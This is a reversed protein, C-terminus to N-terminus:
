AVPNQFAERPVPKELLEPDIGAEYVLKEDYVPNGSDSWVYIPLNPHAKRFRMAEDTYYREKPIIVGILAKVTEFVAEGPQYEPLLLRDESENYRSWSTISSIFGSGGAPLGKDSSIEVM